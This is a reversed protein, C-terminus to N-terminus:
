FRFCPAPPRTWGCYDRCSPFRGTGTRSSWCPRSGCAPLWSGVLHPRPARLYYGKSPPRSGGHTHAVARWAPCGAGHTPFWRVGGISLGAARVRRPPRCLGANRVARVSVAIGFGQTGAPTFHSPTWSGYSLPLVPPVWGVLQWSSSKHPPPRSALGTVPVSGAGFVFMPPGQPSWTRRTGPRLSLSCAGCRAVRKPVRRIPEFREGDPREGCSLASGPVNRGWSGRLARPFVGLRQRAPPPPPGRSGAARSAPPRRWPVVVRRASSGSGRGFVICGRYGGLNFADPM